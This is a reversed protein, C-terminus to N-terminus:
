RKKQQAGIVLLALSFGWSKGGGRGGLYAKYRAPQFLPKFATQIKLSM